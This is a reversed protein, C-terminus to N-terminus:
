DVTFECFTAFMFIGRTTTGSGSVNAAYTGPDIGVLSLQVSDEITYKFPNPLHTFVKFHGADTTVLGDVFAIRGRVSSLTVDVDLFDGTVFCEAKASGFNGYVTEKAETTQAPQATAATAANALAAVSTATAVALASTLVTNRFKM